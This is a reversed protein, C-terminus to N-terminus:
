FAVTWPMWGGAGLRRVHVLGDPFRAFVQVNTANLAVAGAGGVPMGGLSRSLGWGSATRTWEHLAGDVGRAFLDVAPSGPVATLVPAADSAGRGIAIWGTWRGASLRNVSLSGDRAVAAVIVGAPTNAAGLGSAFTTSGLATWRGLGATPSWIATRVRGDPARLVVRVTGDALAAAAPEDRLFAGTARWTNDASTRLWLKGDLGRAVTVILGSPTRVSSPRGMVPGGLPWAAGWGTAYLTRREAQANSGSAVVTVRARADLYASVGGATRGIGAAPDVRKVTLTVTAGLIDSGGQVLRFSESSTGTPVGTGTPAAGGGPVGNGFLPLSATGTAGPAITPATGAVLASPRDPALWSAGASPSVRGAPNTALAVSGDIPWSVNGTNRFTVTVPLSGALPVVATTGAVTPPSGPASVGVVTGKLVPAAVAVTWTVTDGFISTGDSLRYAAPYSGPATTAADVAVALEIVDGPLVTAAGPHTVDAVFRGPAPAFSPAAGVPVLSLAAPAFSETGQVKM